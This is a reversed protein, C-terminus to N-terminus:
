MLRGDNRYTRESGFAPIVEGDVDILHQGEDVVQRRSRGPPHSGSEGPAVTHGTPDFEMSM